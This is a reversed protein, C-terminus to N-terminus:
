LKRCCWLRNEGGMAEDSEAVLGADAILAAIRTPTLFTMANEPNLGFYTTFSEGREIRGADGDTDAVAERLYLRGEPQLLSALQALTTAQLDEPWYHLVDLVLITDFREAPPNALPLQDRRLRWQGGIIRGSLSLARRAVLLKDVDLDVGLYATTGARGAALVATLGPGCGADLVRGWARDESALRAYIPDNALKARAYFRWYPELGSFLRQAWTIIGAPSRERPDRASSRPPYSAAILWTLVTIWAMAPWAADQVYAATTAAATVVPTWAPFGGSSERQFWAALPTTLGLAITIPSAAATASLSLALLTAAAIALGLLPRMSVGIWIAACGVMTAFLRVDLDVIAVRTEAPTRLLASLAVLAVLPVIWRLPTSKAEPALEEGITPVRVPLVAPLLVALLAAALIPLLLRLDVFVAALLLPQAIVLAAGTGRGALRRRSGDRRALLVPSLLAVVSALAAPWLTAPPRWWVALAVIPACVIPVAVAPRATLWRQLPWWSRAIM